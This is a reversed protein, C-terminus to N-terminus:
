WFALACAVHTAQSAPRKWGAGPLSAHMAQGDPWYWKSIPWFEVAEHIVQHKRLALGTGAEHLSSEGEVGLPMCAMAGRPPERTSARLM